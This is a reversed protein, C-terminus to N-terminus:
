IGNRLGLQEPYPQMFLQESIYNDPHRRFHHRLLTMPAILPVYGQRYQDILATLEQKEASDLRQKLYGRIHELANVQGRRTAPKQLAAMLLQMVQQALEPLPMAQPNALLRGIQRYANVDRSMVLYKYRSYFRILRHVSLTHQQLALWDAYAFVRLVFSERLADDNLRGDDELPLLPNVAQLGRVFVGSADAKEVHGAPHYRKVRQYGCSPSGKVLVYGCLQPNAALYDAAQQLLAATVDRSHDSIAVAHENGSDGILRIPERPVGLGIALEPCFTQWHFVSSLSDLVDPWRKSGGNFRVPQGALCAGIAVPLKEGAPLFDVPLRNMPMSNM